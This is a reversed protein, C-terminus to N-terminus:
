TKVWKEWKKKEIKVENEGNRGWKKGMQGREERNKGLKEWLCGKGHSGGLCCWRPDEGEDRGM